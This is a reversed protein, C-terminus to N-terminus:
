DVEEDDGGDQAAAGVTADEEMVRPRLPKKWM